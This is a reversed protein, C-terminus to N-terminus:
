PFGMSRVLAQRAAMSSTVALRSVAEACVAAGAVSAAFGDLIFSVM